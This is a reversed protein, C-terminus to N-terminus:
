NCTLTINRPPRAYARALEQCTQKAEAPALVRNWLAFAALSGTFSLQYNCNSGAVSCNATGGNGYIGFIFPASQTNPTVTGNYVTCATSMSPGCVPVGNVYFSTGASSTTGATKTVTVVCYSNASCKSGPTGILHSNDYGVYVDGSSGYGTSFGNGATGYYGINGILQVNSTIANPSAVWTISFASNGTIPWNDTTICRPQLAAGNTLSLASAGWFLSSTAPGGANGPICTAGSIMDRPRMVPYLTKGNHDFFDYLRLLGKRPIGRGGVPGMTFRLASNGTLNAGQPPAEAQFHLRIFYLGYVDHTKDGGSNAEFEDGEFALDMTVHNPDTGIYTGQVFSVLGPHLRYPMIVAAGAAHSAATTGNYGRTVTWAASGVTAATVQMQESDIQLVFPVAPDRLQNYQAAGTTVPGTDLSLTTASSTIGGAAVRFGHPNTGYQYLDPSVTSAIGPTWPGLLSPAQSMRLHTKFQPLICGDNYFQGVMVYRNFTPLYTVTPRVGAGDLGWYGAGCGSGGTTPSYTSLVAVSAAASLTSTWGSGNWAQWDSVNLNPLNACPVRFIYLSTTDGSEGIFYVYTNQGEVTPCTSGTDQYNAPLVPSMETTKSNNPFLVGAGTSWTPRDGALTTANSPCTGGNAQITAPNCFHPTASDIDDSRILTADLTQAGAQVASHHVQVYYHGAISFGGNTKNTCGSSASCGNGYDADTRSENGYGVTNDCFTSSTALAVSTSNLNGYTYQAMRVIGFNCSVGSLGGDNFSGYRNGAATYGSFHWTDGRVTGVGAKDNYRM